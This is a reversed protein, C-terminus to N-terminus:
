KRRLLVPGFSVKTKGITGVFTFKGTTVGAPWKCVFGKPGIEAKRHWSSGALQFEGSLSPRVASQPM